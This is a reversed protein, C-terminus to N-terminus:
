TEPSPADAVVLEARQQRKHEGGGGDDSSSAAVTTEAPAAAAAGSARATAAAGSARAPATVVEPAVGRAVKLGLPATRDGEVHMRGCFASTGLAVPYIDGRENPRLM